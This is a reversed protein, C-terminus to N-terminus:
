QQTDTKFFQDVNDKTVFDTRTLLRGAPPAIGTVLYNFLRVAPDHGIAFADPSSAATIVGQRVLAASAESLDFCFVKVTGTKGAESVAKAVGSIGADLVCIASLSPDSDMFDQAEDHAFDEKGRDEVQGVVSIGPDNQTLFDELGKRRQEGVPSAFSSTIVAAKGKGGLLAAMHGAIAQGEAYHDPGVFFLRKSEGAAEDGYTAVPIGADVAANIAAVAGPESAETVIADYGQDKAIQLADSYTESLMSGINIWDLTCNHSALEYQAKQRGEEVSGSSQTQVLLVAIRISRPPAKQVPEVTGEDPMTASSAFAPAPALAEAGPQRAPAPAKEKAGGAWAGIAGALSLIMVFARRPVM